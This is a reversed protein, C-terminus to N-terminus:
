KIGKGTSIKQPQKEDSLSKSEAPSQIRFQEGKAMLYKAKQVWSENFDALGKTSYLSSCDKILCEREKLSSELKATAKRGTKDADFYTYVTKHEGIFEVSRDLNVVSNLVVVDTNAPTINKRWSLWSLFDNFGEFVVVNESTPLPHEDNIFAGEKNVYTVDNGTTRKVGPNKKEGKMYPAGRLTWEGSHNPFGIAMYTMKKEGEPTQMTVTYNVQSCYHNLVLPDIMREETEYRQLTPSTIGKKISKIEISSVSCYEGTEDLTQGQFDSRVKMLIRPFETKWRSKEQEHTLLSNGTLLLIKLSEPNASFSMRIGVEMVAPAQKDWAAVDLNKVLRGYLKAEYPGSAGLIYEMAEADGAFEAKKYQFYQEVSNFHRLGVNFPRIAMNSLEVNEKSGAWINITKSRDIKSLTETEAKAESNSKILAEITKHYVDSIAKRGDETIERSGIGAFNKTLIPATSLVEWGETKENGKLGAEYMSQPGIFKLWVKRDQDFLYIPTQSDIAMQVAWGTGGDVPYYRKGNPYELYQKYLHGIAFVADANKVQMWNRALLDLYKDPQRHLSKNAQLVHEKGEAFQAETIQINGNPTKNGHYYHKSVVGFKAGVEGWVTDSGKAGGSHNVYGQLAASTPGSDRRLASSEAYNTTNTISPNINALFELAEDFSCGQIWQVLDITDGGAQKRGEKKHSPDFDGPDSFSHTAENVHFSPIKDERFPSHYLGSRTHRVDKGLALLVEYIPTSRLVNIQEKTYTKFAAM